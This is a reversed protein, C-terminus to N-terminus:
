TSVLTVLTSIAVVKRRVIKKDREVTSSPRLPLLPRVVLALLSLLRLCSELPPEKIWKKIVAKWMKILGKSLFTMRAGRTVGGREGRGFFPM